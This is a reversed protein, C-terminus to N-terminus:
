LLLWIQIQHLFYYELFLVSSGAYEGVLVEAHILRETVSKLIYRTGNCHGNRPDLNRLLMIALANKKLTMKHPPLGFLTISNLFEQPYLIAQDSEAVTDLSKLVVEQGPLLKMITENLRDVDTNKITLLAREGLWQSNTQNTENELGSYVFNILEKESPVCLPYPLEIVGELESQVNPLKGEGLKLLWDAYNQLHDRSQDDYSNTNAFVRMNICLKLKVCSEWLPSKTLCANVVDPCRGRRVVPIIQRFDGALILLKGGFADNSNMIDKLTRDLAEFSFRHCMPAEDWVLVNSSYLLRGHMDRFSM